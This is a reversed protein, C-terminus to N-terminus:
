ASQWAMSSRSLPMGTRVQGKVPKSTTHDLWDGERSTALKTWYRKGAIDTDFIGVGHLGVLEEDLSRVARMECHVIVMRLARASEPAHDM